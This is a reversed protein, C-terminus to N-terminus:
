SLVVLGTASARVLSLGLGAGKGGQARGLTTQQYATFLKGARLDAADIGPGTDQVEIRVIVHPVNGLTDAVGTEVLSQVTTCATSPTSMDAKSSLVNASGPHVLRTRLTISGERTFKAANSILNAVVQSLRQPDGYLQEAVADIAPDLDAILALRRQQALPRFARVLSKMITTFSLATSRIVFAGAEM